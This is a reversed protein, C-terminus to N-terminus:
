ALKTLLSVLAGIFMYDESPNLTDGVIVDLHPNKRTVM